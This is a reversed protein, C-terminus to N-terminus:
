KIGRERGWSRVVQRSVFPGGLGSRHAVWAASEVARSFTGVRGLEGCSEGNCLFVGEIGLFKSHGSKLVPSSAAHYVRMAEPIESLNSYPYAEKFDHSVSRFDPFVRVAHRSAQPVLHDLVALLRAAEVRM